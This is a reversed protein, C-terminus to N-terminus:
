YHLHQEYEALLRPAFDKEAAVIEAALAPLDLSQLLSQNPGSLHAQLMAIRYATPPHTVDLRSDELQQVRRVRAMERAPVQAMRDRFADFLPQQPDLGQAIRQLTLAFTRGFHLKEMLSVMAATGSVTAAAHDALYEDRQSDRWLLHCMANIGLRPLSALGLLIPEVITEGAHRGTVTLKPTLVNYWAVLADLASTIFFNLNVDDNAGHALEHAVLAIREREDLIAWLPVGLYLYSRRRWGGKGYAANFDEDFVIGAIRPGGITAAIADVFAYTEPFQERPATAKPYPVVRPRLAIALLFCPISLASLLPSPWGWRLIAIGGILAAVTSLHILTAVAFVAAEATTLTPSLSAAARLAEFIQRSQQQGLQEYIRALITRPPDPRRPQLNWGCEECWTVYGPFVPIERQCQPCPQHTTAEIAVM